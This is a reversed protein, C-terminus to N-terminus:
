ERPSDRQPDTIAITGPTINEVPEIEKKRGFLAFAM